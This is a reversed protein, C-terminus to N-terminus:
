VFIFQIILVFALFIIKTSRFNFDLRTQNATSTMSIIPVANRDNSKGDLRLITPRATTTTQNSLLAEDPKSKNAQHEQISAAAVAIFMLFIIASKM